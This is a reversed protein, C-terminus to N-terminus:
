GSLNVKIGDAELDAAFAVTIANFASKSMSYSGLM